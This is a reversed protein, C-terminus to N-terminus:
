EVSTSTDITIHLHRCEAKPGFRYPYIPGLNEKNRLEPQREFFIEREVLLQKNIKCVVQTFHSKLLHYSSEDRRGDSEFLPVAFCFPPIQMYLCSIEIKRLGNPPRLHIKVLHPYEILWSQSKETRYVGHIVNLENCAAEIEKWSKERNRSKLKLCTTDHAKKLKILTWQVRHSYPVCHCYRSNVFHELSISVGYASRYMIAVLIPLTVDHQSEKTWIISHHTQQFQKAFEEELKRISSDMWYPLLMQKQTTCLEATFITRPNKRCSAIDGRYSEFNCTCQFKKLICKAIPHGNILEEGEMEISLAARAKDGIKLTGNRIMWQQMYLDHDVIPPQTTTQQQYEVCQAQSKGNLILEHKHQGPRLISLADLFGRINSQPMVPFPTVTASSNCLVMECNTCTHPKTEESVATSLAQEFIPPTSPLQSGQSISKPRYDLRSGPKKSNILTAVKTCSIRQHLPFEALFKISPQHVSERPSDCSISRLPSRAPPTEPHPTTRGKLEDQQLRKDDTEDNNEQGPTTEPDPPEPPSRGLPPQAAGEKLEPPLEAGNVCSDSFSSSPSEASFSRFIIPENRSPSSTSRYLNM